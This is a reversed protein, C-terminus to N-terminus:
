PGTGENFSRLAWHEPFHYFIRKLTFSLNSGRADGILFSFACPRPPQKPNQSCHVGPRPSSKQGLYYWTVYLAAKCGPVLFPEVAPTLWLALLRSVQALPDPLDQPMLTTLKLFLHLISNISIKTSSDCNLNRPNQILTTCSKFFLEQCAVALHPIHSASHCLHFTDQQIWWTM